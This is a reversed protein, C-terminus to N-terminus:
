LPPGACRALMTSAKKPLKCWQCVRVAPTENQDRVVWFHPRIWASPSPAHDPVISSIEHVIGVVASVGAPVIQILWVAFAFPNLIPRM